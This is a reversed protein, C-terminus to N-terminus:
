GLPGLEDLRTTTGAVAGSLAFGGGRLAVFGLSTDTHLMQAVVPVDSAVEISYFYRGNETAQEILEDLTSIGVRLLTGAAAVRDIELEFGDTFRITIHIAADSAPVGFGPAMPNFIYLSDELVNPAARSPDTFGEAFRHLNAALVPVAGGYSAESRRLSYSAHVPNTATYVLSYVDDADQPLLHEFSASRGAPVLAAAPFSFAPTTEGPLYLDINVLSDSAGPNFFSVTITPDDGTAPNAGPDAALPIVGVTSPAQAAGTESYGEPRDRPPGSLAYHSRSVAIPQTSTVRVAFTGEPVSENTEFNIGGRRFYATEFVIPEAESGDERIFTVTVTANENGPNYWVLFDQVDALKETRPFTWTTALQSSFPMAITNGLDYHSLSAALPLTSRLEFAFPRNETRVASPVDYSGIRLTVGGRSHAPIVGREVLDDRFVGQLRGGPEYRVILEYHVPEDNPNDIPIFERIVNNLFGEPEFLTHRYFDPAGPAKLLAVDFTRALLSEDIVDGPEGDEGPPTYHRTVPVNHFSGLFFSGFSGDLTLDAVELSAFAQVVDWSRDDIVRAFVVSENPDATTSNDRLNFIYSSVSLPGGDNVSGMAVTRETNARGSGVPEDVPQSVPIVGIEPAVGFLGGQLVDGPFLRHFFTQDPTIGRELGNLFATILDPVENALLELDIDGFMTTIRFAPNSPDEFDMLSPLPAPDSFLTRPELPEFSQSFSPAARRPAHRLRTGAIAAISNM